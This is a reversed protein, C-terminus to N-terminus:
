QTLRLSVLTGPKRFLEFRDLLIEWLQDQGLCKALCPNSRSTIRTYGVLALRKCIAHCVVCLSQIWNGRDSLLSKTPLFSFSPELVFTLHEVATSSYLFCMPYTSLASMNFYISHFYCLSYFTTFCRCPFQLFDVM